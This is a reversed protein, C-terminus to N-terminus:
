VEEALIGKARTSRMTSSRNRQGFLSGRRGGAWVAVGSTRTFHGQSHGGPLKPPMETHMPTRHKTTYHHYYSVSGGAPQYMRGSAMRFPYVPWSMAYAPDYTRRLNPSGTSSCPVVSHGGSQHLGEGGTHTRGRAAWSFSGERPADAFPPGSSPRGRSSDSCVHTIPSSVPIM